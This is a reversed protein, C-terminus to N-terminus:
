KYVILEFLATGTLHFYLVNVPRWRCFADYPQVFVIELISGYIM